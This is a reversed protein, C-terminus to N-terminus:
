RYICSKYAGLLQEGVTLGMYELAKQNDPENPVRDNIRIGMGPNTGYTIMPAIDAADFEFSADFVADLDSYLEEWQKQYHDWQAGQPAFTRGKLYNFTTADPAIMGGRAGMEISMNCITMRAEMSLGRITSGTYEIFYGTAGSTSIKSAIYLIIDKSLVGSDLTGNVEIKMRKPKDQLVCQTALVQEVESTGIGFPLRELHGM